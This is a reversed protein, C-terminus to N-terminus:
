LTNGQETPAIHTGDAGDDGMIDRGAWGLVFDALEDLKIRLHLGIWGLHFTRDCDFYQHFPPEREAGAILRVFGQDYRPPTRSDPGLDGV